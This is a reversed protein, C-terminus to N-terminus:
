RPTPWEFLRMWTPRPCGEGECRSLSFSVNVCLSDSFLCEFVCMYVCEYVCFILVLLFNFYILVCFICFNGFHAFFSVLIWSRGPPDSYGDEGLMMHTLWKRTFETENSSDLLSENRSAQLINGYWSFYWLEFDEDLIFYLIDILFDFDRSVQEEETRNATKKQNSKTTFINAVKQLVAARGIKFPDVWVREGKWTGKDTVLAQTSTYNFDCVSMFVLYDLVCVCVCVCVELSSSALGPVIIIPYHPRYGLQAKAESITQQCFIDFTDCIQCSILGHLKLVNFFVIIFSKWLSLFCFLDLKFVM